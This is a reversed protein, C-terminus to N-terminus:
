GACALKTQTAATEVALGSQLPLQVTFLSGKGVESCVSVTGQHVDVIRQVLHLGLGSGSQQHNGKRFRQFLNSQDAQSMGFGTDKVTLIVLEQDHSDRSIELNVEVYGVDTFKISNGVLNTVMRRLEIRDGMIQIQNADEAKPRNLIIGKETALPQLEQIVESVIEGLNCIMCTLTKAGAEYCHVELLTNVMEMLVQNSRVMASLAVHMETSLPCFAEKQFLKLMMDAAVLPTRLDHTLHSIFAQRELAIEELKQNQARLQEYSEQLLQNALEAQIEANHIRIANQLTQSLRDSSLSSKPLYDTAGAKMVEVAIQEDGQGTLFILPFKIEMQRITKLVALGDQDPLRYDLFICDFSEKVTSALLAIASKADVAETFDVISGTAKLARRVAMRDVEDDDIILVRLPSKM